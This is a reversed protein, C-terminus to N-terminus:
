QSVAALVKLDYWGVREQMRQFAAPRSVSRSEFEILDSLV